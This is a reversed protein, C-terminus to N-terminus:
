FGFFRKLNGKSPKGCSSTETPILNSKIPIFIAGECGEASLSQTYPEFWVWEVGEPPKTRAAQLPFNIAFHTWVKLAASSGTYPTEANDDNGVWVTALMNGGYGVFWSDRLDNTTGTKGAIALDKALYNNISRSTGTKVVEQLGAHILYAIDKDLVQEITFSYRNLQEGQANQVERIARIPTNFGGSAITQYMQTVEFPSLEIAGLLLSPFNGIDSEIGLARLTQIVESVGVSMGLRVTAQNYSKSMAEILPVKGETGHVINDFNKPSWLEQDKEVSDDIESEVTGHRDVYILSDDILTGWHYQKIELAKIYVAPKVLSGVARRADLVRNFGASRVDAGGVLSLVEATQPAIVLMAGQLDPVSKVRLRGIIETVSQEAKSQVIPDFSTFIRLGESQLNEISYDANLQQKVLSLFAPYQKHRLSSSETLSLDKKIYIQLQQESIFGNEAMLKLILNRRELAREPNRRPEYFSPGKVLAVLLAVQHLELNEVESSFYHQSALGFGHIGRKGVQGLNVENLYAELIENKSYHSELLVSMMAENVKRILTRENSLYFNKVLQQTLTSGGQKVRGSFLNVIAARLIGKPSVGFHNFFERDEVLVLTEILYEPTQSLQILVRDENHSPYIGGILQPELRGIAHSSASVYKDRIEIKITQSNQEGESFNFGRTVILFDASNANFVKISFSGKNTPITKTKQYQLRRLEALLDSPHIQLGVFIELPRAYVKAPVSWRKGEFKERVENDLLASWLIFGLFFLASFFIIFPTFLALKSKKTAKKNAISKKSPTKKPNKSKSATKKSAPSKNGSKKNGSKKDRSKKDRSMSRSSGTKKDAM